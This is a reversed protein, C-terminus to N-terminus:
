WDLTKDVLVIGKSGSSGQPDLFMNIFKDERKKDWSPLCVVSSIEQLYKTNIVGIFCTYFTM